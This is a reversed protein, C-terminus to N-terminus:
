TVDAYVYDTDSPTAEDLQQYLPQSPTPATEWVGGGGVDGDPYMEQQFLYTAAFATETELAQSSVTETDSVTLTLPSDTESPQPVFIVFAVTPDLASGTETSQNVFYTFATSVTFASDTELAQGVVYVKASEATLATDTEVSQAIQFALALPVLSTDTEVAQGVQIAIDPALATDTEVSQAIQIAIGPDLATDTEVAQPVQVALGLPTLATETESPQTAIWDDKIATAPLASSTMSARGDWEDKFNPAGAILERRDEGVFLLSFNVRSSVTGIDRPDMAPPNIAADTSANGTQYAIFVTTGHTAVYQTNWSWATAIPVAASSRAGEQTLYPWSDAQMRVQRNSGGSEQDGSLRASTGTIILCQQPTAGPDTTAPPDWNAATSTQITPAVTTSVGQVCLVVGTMATSTGYSWTDSEGYEWKTTMRRWFVGLGGSNYLTNWSEGGPASWTYGTVHAQLILVVIDDERYKLWPTISPHWYYVTHSTAPTDQVWLYQLNAGWWQDFVRPMGRVMEPQLSTFLVWAPRYYGTQYETFWSDGSNYPTEYSMAMGAQVPPSEVYNRVYETSVPQGVQYTPM